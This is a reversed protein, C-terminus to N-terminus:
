KLDLLSILQDAALDRKAIKGMLTDFYKPALGTGPRKIAM